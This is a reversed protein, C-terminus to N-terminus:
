DCCAHEFRSDVGLPGVLERGPCDREVRHRTREFCLDGGQIASRAMTLLLGYHSQLAEARAENLPLRGFDDGWPAAMALASRGVRMARAPNYYPVREGIRDSNAAFYQTEDALRHFDALKQRAEERAALVRAQRYSQIAFASLAVIAMVAAARALGRRYRWMARGIRVHLPETYAVVPASALFRELDAAVDRPTQYRDSKEYAM